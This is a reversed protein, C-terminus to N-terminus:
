LDDNMGLVHLKHFTKVGQKKGSDQLTDEKLDLILLNSRIEMLTAMRKKAKNPSQIPWWPREGVNSM